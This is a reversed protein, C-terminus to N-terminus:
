THAQQNAFDLADMRTTIYDRLSFLEDMVMQNSPIFDCSLSKASFSSHQQTTPDSSPNESPAIQHESRHKYIMDTTDRFFRMKHIVNVDIKSDRADLLIKSEGGTFVGFHKLM